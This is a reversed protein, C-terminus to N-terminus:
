RNQPTWSELQRLDALDAANDAPQLHASFRKPSKLHWRLAHGDTFSVACSQRHRDSPLDFWSDAYPAGDLPNDLEMIGDDISQEHEELFGFVESPNLVQSGKWKIFPWDGPKFDPYKFRLDGNLWVDLSYTRTRELGPIGDVASKDAPCRYVKPNKIYGYLVGAQLNSPTIDTRTNGVVWSGISSSQM